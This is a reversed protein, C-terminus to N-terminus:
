DINCLLAAGRMAWFAGNKEPTCKLTVMFIFFRDTRTRYKYCPCEYPGHAGFQAKRGELEMVKNNATVFLIPLAVFLTKPESEQLQQADRNWACGELSLGYIYCGEPPANKIHDVKETHQVETHYMIDDLAWSDRSDKSDSKKAAQDKLHKRCVEQKMATLM